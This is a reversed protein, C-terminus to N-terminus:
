EHFRLFWRFYELSSEEEGGIATLLDAVSYVLNLIIGEGEAVVFEVSAQIFQRLEQAVDGGWNDARVQFGIM